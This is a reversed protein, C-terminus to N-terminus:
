DDTDVKSASTADPALSISANANPLSKPLDSEISAILGEPNLAIEFPLPLERIQNANEAERHESPSITLSGIPPM